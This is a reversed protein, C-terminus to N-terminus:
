WSIILSSAARMGLYRARRAQSTLLQDATAFLGLMPLILWGGIGSPGARPQASGSDIM